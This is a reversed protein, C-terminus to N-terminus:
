DIEGPNQRASPPVRDLSSYGGRLSDVWQADIRFNGANDYERVLVTREEVAHALECAFAILVEIEVNAIHVCWSTENFVIEANNSETVYQGTFYNGTSYIAIRCSGDDQIRLRNLIKGYSEKLLM